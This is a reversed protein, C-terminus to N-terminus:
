KKVTRSLYYVDLFSIGKTFRSLKSKCVSSFTPGRKNMSFLALLGAYHAPLQLPWAKTFTCYVHGSFTHASLKCLSSRTKIRVPLPFNSRPSKM